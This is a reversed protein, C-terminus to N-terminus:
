IRHAPNSKWWIAGPPFQIRIRPLGLFTIQYCGSLTVSDEAPTVLRCAMGLGLLAFLVFLKSFRYSGKHLRKHLSRKSWIEVGRKLINRQEQNAM